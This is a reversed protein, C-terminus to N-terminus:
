QIILKKSTDFENNEVKIIYIGPLLDVENKDFSLTNNGKIVNSFNKKFVLQGALNIIEVTTSSAKNLKFNVSFTGDSPNPSVMIKSAIKQTLTIEEEKFTELNKNSSNLREYDHLAAAQEADMP